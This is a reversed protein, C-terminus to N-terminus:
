HPQCSVLASSHAVVVVVVCVSLFLRGTQRYRDDCPLCLFLPSSYQEAILAYSAVFAASAGPLPRCQCQLTDTLLCQM